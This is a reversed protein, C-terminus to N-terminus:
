LKNDKQCKIIDGEINKKYNNLIRLEDQYDLLLPNASYHIAYTFEEDTIKRKLLDYLKNRFENSISCIIPLNNSIEGELKEQAISKYGEIEKIKEKVDELIKKNQSRELLIKIGLFLKEGNYRMLYYGIIDKDNKFNDLIVRVKEISNNLNIVSDFTIDLTFLEINNM